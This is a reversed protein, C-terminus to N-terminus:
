AVEKHGAPTRVERGKILANMRACDRQLKSLANKGSELVDAKEVVPSVAQGHENFLRFKGEAFEVVECKGTAVISAGSKDGKAGEKVEAHPAADTKVTGGLKEKDVEPKAAPAKKKAVTKKAM